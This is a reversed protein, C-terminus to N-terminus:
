REAWLICLREVMRELAGGDCTTPSGGDCWAKLHSFRSYGLDKRLADAEALLDSLDEEGLPGRSRPVTLAAVWTPPIPRSM